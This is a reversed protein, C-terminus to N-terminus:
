MQGQGRVFQPQPIMQPPLYQLQQQVAPQTVFEPQKLLSNSDQDNKSLICSVCCTIIFGFVGIILMTIGSDIYIMQSQYHMTYKLKGNYDYSYVPYETVSNYGSFFIGGCIFSVFMLCFWTIVCCYKSQCCSKKSM